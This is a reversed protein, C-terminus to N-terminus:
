VRLDRLDLQVTQELLDLKVRSVKYVKLGKLVLQEM